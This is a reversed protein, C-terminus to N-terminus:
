EVSLPDTLNLEMMKISALVRALNRNLAPFDATDSELSRALTKMAILKENMAKLRNPYDADCM